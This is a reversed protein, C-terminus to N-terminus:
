YSQCIDHLLNIKATQTAFQCSQETNDTFYRGSKQLGVPDTALFVPCKAGQDPSQHGGFGLDNSLTSNVDGPHCANVSVLNPQLKRSFSVTLMRNAQKAQRYATNNNYPRSKFEPDDLNLDGAWYSAVNIIRSPASQILHVSFYEMMWFYGLVNTAWHIEIGEPTEQRERPSIAANNILIHLPSIWRNALEQISSKRSLDALEVRINQQGTSQKIETVTRHLKAENRGVLIVEFNPINVLQRAIAQGIAGSAGTVIAIQHSNHSM